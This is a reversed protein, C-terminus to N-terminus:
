GFLTTSSSAGSASRSFGYAASVDSRISWASRAPLRTSNSPACPVSSGRLASGTPKRASSRGEVADTTALVVDDLNPVARLRELLRTLAPKGCVDMLVKGPLRSSGMRAEISAVTRPRGNM